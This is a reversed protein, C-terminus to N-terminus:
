RSLTNKLKELARWLTVRTNSETAGLRLAIESHSLNHFYRLVVVKRQKEPLQNLARAINSRVEDLWIARVLENEDDGILENLSDLGSTQKLDRCYNKWRSITIMYIWSKLSAREPDYKDYIKYAYEFVQQTLDEADHFSICRKHLFGLVSNRYLSYVEDFSLLTNETM